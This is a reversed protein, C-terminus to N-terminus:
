LKKLRAIEEATLLPPSPHYKYNPDNRGTAEMWAEDRAYDRALEPPNSECYAIAEQVAELPLNYDAAIAEITM